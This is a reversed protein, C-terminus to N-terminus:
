DNESLAAGSGPHIYIIEPYKTADTGTPSPFRKDM